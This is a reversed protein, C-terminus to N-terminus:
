PPDAGDGSRVLFVRTAGWEGGGPGGDAFRDVAPHRSLIRRVTERQVGIGKGHIIRVERFGKEWAAELYSEVVSGIERPRFPHLDLVDEVPLIVEEPLGEEEQKKRRSM